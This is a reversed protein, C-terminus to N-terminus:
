RCEEFGGAGGSAGRAVDITDAKEWREEAARLLRAREEVTFRGAVAALLGHADAVPFGDALIETGAGGAFGGLGCGGRRGAGHFGFEVVEGGVGSLGGVDGRFIRLDEGSEFFDEAFLVDGGGFEGQGREILNALKGGTREENIKESGHARRETEGARKREKEGEEAEEGGGRDVAMFVASDKGHERARAQNSVQQQQLLGNLAHTDLRAINSIAHGQDTLRKLLTAKLVDDDSYLRHRSQTKYPTFSAYRVEWGRLTPTPVGSLSSVAGIKYVAASDPSKKRM